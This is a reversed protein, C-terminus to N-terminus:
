RDVENHSDLLDGNVWFHSSLIELHKLNEHYNRITLSTLSSGHGEEVLKRSSVSDLLNRAGGLVSFVNSEKGENRQVWLKRSELMFCETLIESEVLRFISSFHSNLNNGQLAMPSTMLYLCFPPPPPFKVIFNVQDGRFRKVIRVIRWFQCNIKRYDVRLVRDAVVSGRGNGRFVM